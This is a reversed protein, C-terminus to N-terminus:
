RREYMTNSPSLFASGLPCQPQRPVTARASSQIDPMGMCNEHLFASHGAQLFGPHLRGVERSPLSSADAPDPAVLLGLCPSRRLAMLSQKSGRENWRQGAVPPSAQRYCLMLGFECVPPCLPISGQVMAPRLRHLSLASALEASTGGSTCSECVLECSAPSRVLRSHGNSSNEREKRRASSQLVFTVIVSELSHAYHADLTRM